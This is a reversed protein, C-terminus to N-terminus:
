CGPELCLTLPVSVDAREACSLGPDGVALRGQAVAIGAEDFGTVVLRLTGPPVDPILAPADQCRAPVTRELRGNVVVEITMQSVANEACTLQNAFPWGVGLSRNRRALLLRPAKATQDAVIRVGDTRATHTWCGDAELGQLVLAYRGTPVEDLTLQGAACPASAEYVPNVSTFDYLLAKIEDIRADQCTRGALRWVVELDGVPQVNDCAGCLGAVVLGLAARRSHEGRKSM